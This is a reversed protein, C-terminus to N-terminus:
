WVKGLRRVEEEGEPIGAAAPIALYLPFRDGIQWPWDESRGTNIRDQRLGDDLMELVEGVLGQDEEVELVMDWIGWLLSM